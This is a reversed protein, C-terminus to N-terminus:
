HRTWVASVQAPQLQQAWVRLHDRARTGPGRCSLTPGLQPDQRWSGPASGLSPIAPCGGTGVEGVCVRERRTGQVQEAVVIGAPPESINIGSRCSAREGFESLTRHQSLSPHPRFLGAPGDSPDQSSPLVQM